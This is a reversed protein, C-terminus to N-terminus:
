KKKRGRKPKKLAATEVVEGEIIREEKPLEVFYYGYGEPIHEYCVGKFYKEDASFNHKCMYM